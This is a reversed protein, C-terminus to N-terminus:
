GGSLDKYLKEPDRGASIGKAWQTALTLAHAFSRCLFVFRYSKLFKYHYPDPTTIQWCLGGKEIMFKDTDDRESLM